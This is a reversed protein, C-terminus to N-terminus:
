GRHGGRLRRKKIENTDLNVDNEFIAKAFGPENVGEGFGGDQWRVQVVRWGNICYVIYVYIVSGEEHKSASWPLVNMPNNKSNSDGPM